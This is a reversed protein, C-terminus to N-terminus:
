NVPKLRDKRPGIGEVDRRTGKGPNTRRQRNIGVPLLANPGSAKRERSERYIRLLEQVDKGIQGNGDDVWRTLEDFWDVTKTAGFASRLDADRYSHGMDHSGGPIHAIEHSLTTILASSLADIPGSGKNLADELHEMLNILIASNNLDDPRPIHIGLVTGRDDKAQFLLGFKKLRESPKTWTASYDEPKWGLTDAIDMMQKHVNELAKFTKVMTPNNAIKHLEDPTLLDGDDLYSIHSVEKNPLSDITDYRRQVEAVRKKTVGSIINERIWQTIANNVEGKIQERNASFPYNDDGEEVTAIIDAVISRPVNAQPGGYSMRNTGQYMGKNTMHLQVETPEDVPDTEYHINVDAGPTKITDVLPPMPQPSFDRSMNKVNNWSTTPIPDESTEDLWARMQDPDPGAVEVIKTPTEVSPSREAMNKAWRGADYFGAVSEDYFTTVELGTPVKSDVVEMNLPVGKAQNKLAQPTGEFTYMIKKGTETAVVSRVTVHKGGAFPAAKALGFGGAASEVNGKGTEGLDTLVTYIQEPLLGRGRDRVTISRGDSGGLPNPARLDVAVRVPEKVGMEKHEDWANQLLEKVTVVPRAKSYLSSGMVDWMRPNAGGLAVNELGTNGERVKPVRMEQEDVFRKGEQSWKRKPAKGTELDRSEPPTADEEDLFKKLKRDEVANPDVDERVKPTGSQEFIDGEPSEASGIQKLRPPTVNKAKDLVGQGMGQPVVGHVDQFAKM